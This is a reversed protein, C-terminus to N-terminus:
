QLIVQLIPMGATGGPEGDDFFRQIGGDEGCVYAYCHHSADPYATRVQHLCEEAQAETELAFAQGIFRSRQICIEHLARNKVTTYDKM